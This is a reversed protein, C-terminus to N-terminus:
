CSKSRWGVSLTVKDGCKLSLSDLLKEEAYVEIRGPIPFKAGIRLLVNRCEGSSKSKLNGLFYNYGGRDCHATYDPSPPIISDPTEHWAPEIKKLQETITADVEVNLTGPFVSSWNCLQKIKEVRQPNCEMLATEGPPGKANPKSSRLKVRGIFPIMHKRVIHHWYMTATFIEVAFLLSFPLASIYAGMGFGFPIVILVCFLAVMLALIIIPIAGWRKQFLASIGSLMVLMPILIVLAAPAMLIWPIAVM